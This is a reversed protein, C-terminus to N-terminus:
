NDEEYYKWHYGGAVKRRGAICARLNPQKINLEKAADHICRYIIGTEICIVRKGLNFERIKNRTEISPHKGLTNPGRKKASESMKLRTENSHHKGLMTPYKSLSQRLISYEEETIFRNHKNDFHILHWAYLLGKIDPNELALLKHAIYHEEPYLWIINQHKTKKRGKGGLCKPLIHHSEYYEGNLINWQGRTDIINQIFENYTM